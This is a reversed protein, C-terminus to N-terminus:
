LLAEDPPHDEEVAHRVIVKWSTPFPQLVRAFEMSTQCRGGLEKLFVGLRLIEFWKMRQQLCRALSKELSSLRVLRTYKGHWFFCTLTSGSSGHNPSSYGNESGLCRLWVQSAEAEPLEDAFLLQNM